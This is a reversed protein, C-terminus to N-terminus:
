IKNYQTSQIQPAVLQSMAVHELAESIVPLQIQFDANWESSLVLQRTLQVALKVMPSSVIWTSVYVAAPMHVPIHSGATNGAKNQM